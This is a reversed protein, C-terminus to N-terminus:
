TDKSATTMRELYFKYLRKDPNARILQKVIEIAQPWQKALYYDLAQESLQIEEHLAADLNDRLGIPEYIDVAIKKGKVFVRDLKRFVFDPQNRQTNEGVIIGVGYTKTLAELRSALNVADGIVTYSRRFESGMDGVNMMGTNIGIGINIEPLDHAAFLPKLEAVTKQMLLATEIAHHAHQADILPAGWFAMIMDGVYKDITGGREFIIRTMPTFFQNLIEKIDTAPMSESITTFNRIDSFLVTMERSEGHLSLSTSPHKLISEIYSPPVYQGFIAKLENRRRSEFLYGYAMNIIALALILSTPIILSLIIWTTQYLWTNFAFFLLPILLGLLMLWRASLFPFCFTLILGFLLTISLEMGPAWAPKYPFRNLLIGSAISAHIAVGPYASQLATSQLDGLGFASAGVFVLKNQLARPAIKKTLIDTASYYPIEGGPTRFPILVQGTIDTPIVQKGLHVSDVAILNGLHGLSLSIDSLLYRRTAELALSPYLGNQYRLLLPVKRIIGDNDAFVNIFGSSKVAEQILPINTTFSSMSIFTSAAAVNPDLQLLPPPLIGESSNKNDHFTIGLVTEGQQLSQALKADYNFDPALKHIAAILAANSPIPQLKALILDAINNEQEPFAMDLAIVTAGLKETNLILQAIKDRSWPWRGQQKLSKDDIYVIVVSSNQDITHTKAARLQIDYAMNDIRQLLLHIPKWTTLQLWAALLSLLIGLVIPVVKNMM